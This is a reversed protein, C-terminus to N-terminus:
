KAVEWWIQPGFPTQKVVKVWKGEAGEYPTGDPSTDGKLAGRKTPTWVAFFDPKAPIAEAPPEVVPPDFAPWDSPDLSVPIFRKTPTKPNYPRMSVGNAGIGGPIGPGLDYNKEEMFAPVWAYGQDARRRTELYPTTGYRMVDPDVAYGAVALKFAAEQVEDLSVQENNLREVLPRLMRVEKPFHNWYLDNFEQATM